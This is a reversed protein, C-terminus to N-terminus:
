TSQPLQPSTPITPLISLQQGGWSFPSFDTAVSGEARAGSGRAVGDVEGVHGTRSHSDGAGQRMGFPCGPMRQESVSAQKLGQGAPM